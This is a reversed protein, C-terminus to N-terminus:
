SAALLRVKGAELQPLLPPLSIASIHTQGGLLAALNPAAGKCLMHPVKLHANQLFAELYLAIGGGDSSAKYKDPNRKADEVFDQLTKWPADNRVAIMVPHIIHQAIPMFDSLKYTIDPMLAFGASLNSSTGVLITYGDPKARAVLTAAITGQAGGKNIVVVPVGIEKTVEDGVIHAALSGPGGAVYGFVLQIPKQPYDLAGGISPFLLSLILSFLIANGRFSFIKRIDNKRTRM